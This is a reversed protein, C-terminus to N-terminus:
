RCGDDSNELTKDITSVQKQVSLGNVDQQHFRAHPM